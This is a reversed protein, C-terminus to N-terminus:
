ENVLCVIHVIDDITTQNSTRPGIHNQQVKVRMTNPTRLCLVFRCPVVCVNRRWNSKRHFWWWWWIWRWRQQWQKIASNRMSFSDNNHKNGRWRLRVTLLVGHPQSTKIPKLTWLCGCLRVCMGTHMRHPCALSGSKQKPREDFRNEMGFIQITHPTNANIQIGCIRSAMWICLCCLRNLRNSRKQNWNLNTHMTRFLTRHKYFAFITQFKM